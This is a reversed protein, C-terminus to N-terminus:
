LEGIWNEFMEIVRVLDERTTEPSLAVIRLVTKGALQTTVIHAYHSDNMKESLLANIRNLEELSAGEKVYRFNIVGLQAPTIIEWHPKDQILEQVWEGNQFGRDIMDSIKDLGLTMLTYWLKIGRAPHSLEFSIDWPNIEFDAQADALYEPSYSFSQLMPKRDKVLLMACSYTQFLWKHGDWTLSDAKSVGNLLHAHTKSFLVSAGFAGDVHFWLNYKEAIDGIESLPDIVGANTTGATAIVMYPKFGKDLDEKIMAELSEPIIQFSENTEVRRIRDDPIGTIHLGKNVSYHAQNSIYVVGKTIEELSLRSDRGIIAASMNASSGGPVFIGMASSPFGAKQCLLNIVAQEAALPGSAIYHSVANANYYDTILSALRGEEQVPGPIFTFNRPHEGKNRYRMVKDTLFNMVEAPDKGEATFDKSLIEEKTQEDLVEIPHGDRTDPEVEDYFYDIFQHTLQRLRDYAM